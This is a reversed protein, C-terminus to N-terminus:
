IPGLEINLGLGYIFIGVCVAALILSMVVTELWGGDSNALRSIGVLLFIAPILGLPRIALGFSVIAALVAILPRFHFREIPASADSAMLSRVAVFAGGAAIAVNLMAPFMGPGMQALTGMRYSTSIILGGLGLLTFLVGSALDKSIHM